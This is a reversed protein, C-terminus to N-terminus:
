FLMHKFHMRVSKQGDKLAKKNKNTAPPKANWAWSARAQITPKMEAPIHLTHQQCSEIPFATSATCLWMPCNFPTKTAGTQKNIKGTAIAKQRFWTEASLHKALSKSTYQFRSSSSKYINLCKLKIETETEIETEIHQFRQNMPPLLFTFQVMATFVHNRFFPKRNTKIFLDNDAQCDFYISCFM